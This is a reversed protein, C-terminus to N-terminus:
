KLGEAIFEFWEDTNPELCHAEGCCGRFRATEEGIETGCYPCIGRGHLKEAQTIVEARWQAENRCDESNTPHGSM